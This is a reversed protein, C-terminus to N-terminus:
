KASAGRELEEWIADYKGTGDRPRIGLDNLVADLHDGYYPGGIRTPRKQELDEVLETCPEKNVWGPGHLELSSKLNFILAKRVEEIIEKM